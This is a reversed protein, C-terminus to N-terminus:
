WNFKERLIRLYSKTPSPILKLKQPAKSFIISKGQHLRWNKRGDLLLHVEEEEEEILSVEIIFTDPIILSKLPPRFACIPTILLAETRPHVVPGGASLNYATSGTPTSVILGDGCVKLFDSGEIKIELTIIRGLPGKLIAGENLVVEKEEGYQVQLLSREEFTIKGELWKELVLPLEELTVETLFGFKGMNVGLIPLGWKYALPVAKLLTGDGGLVLIGAFAKREEDHPERGSSLPWLKVGYRKISERFLSPWELNDKSVFLFSLM